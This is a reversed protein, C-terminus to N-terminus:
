SISYTLSHHFLWNFLGSGLHLDSICCFSNCGVVFDFPPHLPSVSDGWNFEMVRIKEDTNSNMQTNQKLLHLVSEIFPILHLLHILNSQDTLLVDAGLKACLIGTLGTGAGLELLKKGKFNFKKRNKELFKALAKGQSDNKASCNPSYICLGMTQYWHQRHKYTTPIHYDIGWHM